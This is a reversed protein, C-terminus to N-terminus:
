SAIGRPVTSSQLSIQENNIEARVIKVCNESGLPNLIKKQATPDDRWIGDAIFRYEHDGPKLAVRLYWVGDIGKDMPMAIPDWNNFDGVLSVLRATPALFSFPILNPKVVKDNSIKKMKLRNETAEPFSGAAVVPLLGSLGNWSKSASRSRTM